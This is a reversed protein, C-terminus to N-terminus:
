STRRWPRARRKWCGAGRQRRPSSTTASVAGDGGGGFQQEARRKGSGLRAAAKGVALRRGEVTAAAAMAAVSLTMGAGIRQMETLGRKNSTLRRVAPVVAADYLPVLILMAAAYVSHLSAAPIAFAGAGFGLRRRMARGQVTFLPQQVLVMCYVIGTARTWVPLMRVIVKLEDVQTVTCLRWPQAAPAAAEPGGGSLSSMAVAAAAEGRQGLVQVPRHAGAEARVKASVDYLVFSDHPLAVNRKSYMASGLLFNAMALVTCLAPVGFGVLWGFNDQLWVM